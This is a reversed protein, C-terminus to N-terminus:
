GAAAHAGRSGVPALRNATPNFANNPPSSHKHLHRAELHCAYSAVSRASIDDLSPEHSATIAFSPVSHWASFAARQTVVPISTLLVARSSHCQLALGRVLSACRLIAACRQGAHPQRNTATTARNM